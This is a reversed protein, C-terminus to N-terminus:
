RGSVQVVIHRMKQVLVHFCAYRARLAQTWMRVTKGPMALINEFLLLNPDRPRTTGLSLAAEACNRGRRSVAIAM